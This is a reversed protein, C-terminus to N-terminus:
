VVSKSSILARPSVLLAARVASCVAAASNWM